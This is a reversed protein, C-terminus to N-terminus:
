ISKVTFGAPIQFKEAPVPVDFEAKMAKEFAQLPGDSEMLMLVGQWGAFTVNGNGTAVRYADCSFGLLEMNPLMTVGDQNRLQSPKVTMAIGRYAPGQNWATKEEDDLRMTYRNVGDSLQIEVMEGEYFMEFCEKNGYDDFYYVKSMTAMTSGFEYHLIGSKVAYKGATAQVQPAPSETKEPVAPTEPSRGCALLAFAVLLLTSIKM